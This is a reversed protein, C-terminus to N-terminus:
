VSDKTRIFRCSFFILDPNYSMSVSQADAEVDDGDGEGDGDGDGDAGDAGDAAVGCDTEGDCLTRM